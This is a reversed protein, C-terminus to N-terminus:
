YNDGRSDSGGYNGSNGGYSDTNGGYSSDAGAAERKERGKEALGDHKFM